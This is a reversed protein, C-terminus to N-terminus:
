KKEFFMREHSVIERLFCVQQDNRRISEIQVRFDADLCLRPLLRAAGRLTKWLRGSKFLNATDQGWRNLTEIYDLRGNSSCLFNFHGSAATIIQGKGSPLWSGPYFRTLRALIREPTGEPATLSLRKPDPVEKGWTMTQLFLRGGATLAEACFRFFDRYILDQKGQIYEDMSCFHEFSGISIVGDFAGLSHPPVTKWDQLVVELGKARCYNAQARSITLGIATGGRRRVADLMPGWGSGVDLINDGPKFGLSELAWQHKANQAEVLTQKFDGNFFACSFDAYDGSRLTHFHHVWDYLAEIESQTAM